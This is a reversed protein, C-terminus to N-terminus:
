KHTPQESVQLRAFDPRSLLVYKRLLIVVLSIGYFLWVYHYWGGQLQSGLRLGHYFTAVMAADGARTVYKWWSKNGFWRYLGFMLFVALSATGLLTVWANSVAVFGEYSGPPLGYGDRFRMYVLLAPHLAISTVAIRRNQRFFGDLNTGKYVSKRLSNALYQSWMVSYGVIGLLPFFTYANIANLSWGM